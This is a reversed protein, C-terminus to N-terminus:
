KQRNGILTVESLPVIAPAPYPTPWGLAKCWATQRFATNLQDRGEIPIYMSAAIVNDPDTIEPTLVSPYGTPWEPAEKHCPVAREMVKRWEAYEEDALWLHMTSGMDFYEPKWKTRSTYACYVQVGTTPFDTRTAIHKATAEALAELESSRIASLIVGWDKSYEEYFNYYDQVIRQAYGEDLFLAEMLKTYPAGAAPIETPSGICWETAHRLEYAVEICQMFCADFLIYDWHIGTSHLVGALTAIEMETGTDGTTNRNNDIGITSQPAPIWGSGHSWLVLGYHEAPFRKHIRRLVELMAHSDTSVIDTDYEYITEEKGTGDFAIIQPRQSADSNDYFVILRCDEPISKMGQRIEFLDRPADGSLSNEGMMYVVVVKHMTPPIPEEVDDDKDRCAACLILPIFFLWMWHKM